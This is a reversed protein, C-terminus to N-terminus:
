MLYQRKLFATSSANHSKYLVVSINFWSQTDMAERLPIKLEWVHKIGNDSGSGCRTIAGVLLHLEKRSRSRLVARLMGPCKAASEADAAAAEGTSVAALLTAALLAAAAAGMPCSCSFTAALKM